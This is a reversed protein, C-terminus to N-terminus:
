NLGLIKKYWPIDKKRKNIKELLAKQLNNHTEHWTKHCETCLLMVNDVKDIGGNSLPNIHHRELQSGTAEINSQSRKCIACVPEVNGTSKGITKIPINQVKKRKHINKTNTLFAEKIPANCKPCSWYMKGIIDNSKQLVPIVHKKCKVCDIEGINKYNNKNISKKFWEVFAPSEINWKEIDNSIDFVMTTSSVVFWQNPLRCKNKVCIPRIKYDKYRKDYVPLLVTDEGCHPCKLLQVDNYVINKIYPIIKTNWSHILLPLEEKRNNCRYFDDPISICDCHISWMIKKFKDLVTEVIIVDNNCFPCPKLNEVNEPINICKM